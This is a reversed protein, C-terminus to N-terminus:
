LDESLYLKEKDSLLWTWFIIDTYTCSACVELLLSRDAFIRSNRERWINWCMAAITIAHVHKRANGSHIRNWMHEKKNTRSVLKMWHACRNWVSVSYTCGLLLHSIDEGYSIQVSYLIRTGELGEKLPQVLDFYCWESNTLSINQSQPFIQYGMDDECATNLM